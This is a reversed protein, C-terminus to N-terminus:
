RRETADQKEQKMREKHNQTKRERQKEEKKEDENLLEADNIMSLASDRAFRRSAQLLIDQVSFVVTWWPIGHYIITATYIDSVKYLRTAM